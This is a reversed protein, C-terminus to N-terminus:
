WVSIFGVFIVTGGKKPGWIMYYWILIIVMIEYELILILIVFNIVWNWNWWIYAMYKCIQLVLWTEGSSVTWYGLFLWFHWEDMVGYLEAEWIFFLLMRGDGVYGNKGKFTLQLCIKGKFTLLLMDSTKWFCFCFCFTQNRLQSQKKMLEKNESKNRNSTVNKGM